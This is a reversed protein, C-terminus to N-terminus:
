GAMWLTGPPREYSVFDCKFRGITKTAWTTSECVIPEGKFKENRFGEFNGTQSIDPLDTVCVCFSGGVVCSQLFSDRLESARNNVHGSKHIVYIHTTVKPVGKGAKM